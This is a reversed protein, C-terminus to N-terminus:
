LDLSRFDEIFARLYPMVYVRDLNYESFILALIKLRHELPKLKNVVIVKKNNLTCEGGIFDGKGKIIRIGLKKSLEGFQNYLDKQKM